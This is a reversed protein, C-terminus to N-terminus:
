PNGDAFEVEGSGECLDCPVMDGEEDDWVEGLGECEPCSHTKVEM